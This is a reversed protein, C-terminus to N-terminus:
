VEDLLSVSSSPPAPRHPTGGTEVGAGDTWVSSQSPVKQHSPLGAAGMEHRGATFITEYAPPDDPSTKPYNRRDSSGLGPNSVSQYQRREALDMNSFETVIQALRVAQNASLGGPGASNSGPIDATQSQWQRGPDVKALEEMVKAIIAPQSASLGGAGARSHAANGTNSGPNYAAQSPSQGGLDARALEEVIKAIYAAQDASPGGPSDGSHAANDGRPHYATQKSPLGELDASALVKV